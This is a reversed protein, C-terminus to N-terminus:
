KAVQNVLILLGGNDSTKMSTEQEKQRETAIYSCM